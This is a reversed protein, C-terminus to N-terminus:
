IFYDGVVLGYRDPSTIKVISRPYTGDPSPISLDILHGPAPIRGGTADLVIRVVPRNLQEPDPSPGAVVAVEFTDLIV